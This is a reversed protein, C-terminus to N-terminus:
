ETFDAQITVIVDRKPYPARRVAERLLTEMSSAYGQRENHRFITLPLVRGYPELVAQTGDTSADDLVLLEFDRGLATLVQRIKWLLVGVTRAENHSAICVYIM